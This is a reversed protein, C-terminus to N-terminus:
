EGYTVFDAATPTASGALAVGFANTTLGNGTIPNTTYDVGVIQNGGSTETVEATAEVEIVTTGEPVEVEFTAPYITNEDVDFTMEKEEVEIESNAIVQLPISGEPLELNFSLPYLTDGDVEISMNKVRAFNDLEDKTVFNSTDPIVPIDTKKVYTDEAHQATELGSIDPVTPIDTKLAYKNDSETKTYADVPTSTGGGGANSIANDVYEKSVLEYPEWCSADLVAKNNILKYHKGENNIYAFMGEKRLALPINLLESIDDFYMLSGAVDNSDVVPFSDHGPIVTAPVKYGKRNNAM